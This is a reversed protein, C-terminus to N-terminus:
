FIGEEIEENHIKKTIYKIISYIIEDFNYLGEENELEKILNDLAETSVIIKKYYDKEEKNKIEILGAEIMHNVAVSKLKLLHLFIGDKMSCLYFLSMIEPTYSFDRKKFSERFIFGKRLEKLSESFKEFVYNNKLYDRQEISTELNPNKYNAKHLLLTAIDEITLEEALNKLNLNIKIKNM